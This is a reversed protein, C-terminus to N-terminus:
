GGVRSGVGLPGSRGVARASSSSSGGLDRLVEPHRLWMGAWLIAAFALPELAGVYPHTAMFALFPGGDSTRHIALHAAVAGGFYASALLFGLKRTLPVLVLVAVALEVVAVAYYTDDQFGMSAMYAVIAALRSFKAASSLLLAVAGVRLLAEGRAKRGGDPSSAVTDKTHRIM